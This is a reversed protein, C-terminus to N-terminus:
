FVNKITEVLQNFKQLGIVTERGYKNLKRSYLHLICLYLTILLYQNRQCCRFILFQSNQSFKVNLNSM